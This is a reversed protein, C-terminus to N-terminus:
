ERKAKGEKEQSGSDLNPDLEPVGRSAPNGRSQSEQIRALRAAHDIRAQEIVGSDYGRGTSATTEDLLGAKVDNIITDPDSSPVKSAKLEQEILKLTESDLATGLILNVIKINIQKKFTPSPIDERMETLQDVEQKVDSSSKLSWQKPYNVTPTVTKGEYMAWYAALQREGHELELGIYSLGSELGQQDFSKSEASAMKPQISSLALHVLQRIDAKLAAQKEMSVQLPEPSPNIFDPKDFGKPYRRGQTSGVEMENNAKSDIVCNSATDTVSDYAERAQKILNPNAKDDFQEVYFPFNGQLAYSIDSSEMNLLAIQSNAVDKLLSETIEFVVFPIKRIQLTIVATIPQNEANYYQVRVLGDTKDIWVKRYRETQGNPLGTEPDISYEYDRLILAEFEKDFNDDAYKWNRIHEAKYHYFFPHKEGKDMLTPGFDPADVWVGVKKMTLLEPIIYHGIFWNMTAGRLDVGGLLGAISKTYTEPGGVRATDAIRQFIANKIETIAGKAFAPSPTVLKRKRFDEASERKSFKQLYEEIFQEGGKYIIRWKHWDDICSDYEPHTSTPVGGTVTTVKVNSVSLKTGQGWRAHQSDPYQEVTSAPLGRPTRNM